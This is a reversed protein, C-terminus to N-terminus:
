RSRSVRRLAANQRGLRVQEDLLHSERRHQLRRAERPDAQLRRRNRALEVLAVVAGLRGGADLRAANPHEVQLALNPGFPLEDGPGEGVGLFEVEVAADEEARRGGHGRGGRLVQISEVHDDEAVHGRRRKRGLHGRPEDLPQPRAVERQQDEAARVGEPRASPGLRRQGVDQGKRDALGVGVQRAGDPERRRGGAQRMEDEAQFPRRAAGRRERRHREEGPRAADAGHIGRGRTRASDAM